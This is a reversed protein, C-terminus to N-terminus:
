RGGDVTRADETRLLGNLDNSIAALTDRDHVHARIIGTIAGVFLMAKEVTINQNMEQLRKRESEVTRRRQELLSRVDQWAAYDQHGSRILDLITNLAEATGATDGHRRAQALEGAAAKLDSWIHGSEGTDVRSLVDSLRADLLHVEQRMSLLEPDSQSELYKGQLRTPISASYKGHKLSPSAIGSLSKGGHLNCKGNPRANRKCPTGASTKAGCMM